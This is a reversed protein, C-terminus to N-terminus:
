GGSDKNDSPTDIDPFLDKPDIGMKMLQLLLMLEPDLIIEVQKAPQIAKRAAAKEPELVEEIVDIMAQVVPHRPEDSM